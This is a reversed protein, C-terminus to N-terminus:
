VRSVAVGVSIHRPPRYCDCLGGDCEHPNQEELDDSTKPTCPNAGELFDLADSSTKMEAMNHAALCVM